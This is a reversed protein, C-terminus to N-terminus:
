FTLSIQCSSFSPNITLGKKKLKKHLHPILFGIAGGVAVGTIVDSPYHKGARVRLYGTAVPVLIATSWVIPKWKSDPFYDSFVKAAFISNAASVSAHGSFFAYRANNKQKASIPALENFVLPRPRLFVRKSLSTLGGVLLLTEGYLAMIKGFDKQTKQNILFLFPFTYSSFKVYDSGKKAKPSFNFTANRDFSNISARDLSFIDSESLPSVYKFELIGATMYFGAGLGLYCSEQKWNFNYPSQSQLLQSSLILLFIIKNAM